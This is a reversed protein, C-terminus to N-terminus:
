LIYQSKYIQGESPHKEQQQWKKFSLRRELLKGSISLEKEATKWSYIVCNQWINVLIIEM